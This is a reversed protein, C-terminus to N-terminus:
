KEKENIKWDATQRQRQSCTGRTPIRNRPIYRISCTGRRSLYMVAAPSGDQSSCRLAGKNGAAIANNSRARKSVHSRIESKAGSGSAIGLADGCPAPSGLSGITGGSKPADFGAQEGEGPSGSPLNFRRRYRNRKHANTCLPQVVPKFVSRSLPKGLPKYVPINTTHAASVPEYSKLSVRRWPVPVAKGSNRQTKM